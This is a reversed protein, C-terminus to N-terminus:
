PIDKVPLPKICLTHTAEHAITAPPKNLSKRQRALTTVVIHVTYLLIHYVAGSKAYGNKSHGFGQMARHVLTRGYKWLVNGQCRGEIRVKGVSTCLSNGAFKM